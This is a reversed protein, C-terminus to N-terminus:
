NRRQNVPPVSPFKLLIVVSFPTLQQWILALILVLSAYAALVQAPIKIRPHGGDELESNLSRHGIVSSRHGIVSSRHGIV